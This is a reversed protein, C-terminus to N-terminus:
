GAISFSGELEPQGEKADRGRVFSLLYDVVKSAQTSAKFIYTPDGAMENLWHKLYAAHRHQATQPLGLEAALYSASMEAVLEGMAYGHQRHDWGLRVESHHALEHFATEYYAWISDFSEKLPLVILDGSTHNPWTDEPWPRRYVAETGTHLVVAGTARILEEAPAYDIEPAFLSSEAMSKARYKEVGPGDVQDASFVTFQRMVLFTDEVEEGSKPDTKAKKVPRYLVVNAGWKGPAIDAPRKQVQLGLSAWQNYTGWTRSGFGQNRARLELLLPNIGTYARGSLNKHRGAVDGGAWPQRWPLLNKNLMADIISDTIQRRLDNSTM